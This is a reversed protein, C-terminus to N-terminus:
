GQFSCLKTTLSRLHALLAAMHGPLPRRTRMDWCFLAFKVGFGEYAM